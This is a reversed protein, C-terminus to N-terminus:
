KIIRNCIDKTFSKPFMYSLLLMTSNNCELWYCRVEMDSDTEVSAQYTHHSDLIFGENDCIYMRNLLENVNKKKQEVSNPNYECQTPSLTSIETFLKRVKIGHTVEVWKIFESIDSQNIQPMDIRPIGKSNTFQVSQEKFILSM